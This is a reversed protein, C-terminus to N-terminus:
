QIEVGYKEGWDGFTKVILDFTADREENSDFYEVDVRFNGDENTGRIYIKGDALRLEPHTLKIIHLDGVQAKACEGDIGTQELVQFVIAKHLKGLSYAFARGTKSKTKKEEAM